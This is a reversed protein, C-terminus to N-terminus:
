FISLQYFVLSGFASVLAVICCYAIAPKSGIRIMSLGLGVEGATLLLAPWFSDPLRAGLLSSILLSPFYAPLGASIWLLAPLLRDLEKYELLWAYPFTMCALLAAAPWRYQPNRITWFVFYAFTGASIVSSTALPYRAIAALLVASIATLGLLTRVRFQLKKDTRQSAPFPAIPLWPIALCFLFTLITIGLPVAWLLKSPRSQDSGTWEYFGPLSRGVILSLGILVSFAIKLTRPQPSTM